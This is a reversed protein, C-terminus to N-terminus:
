LVKLWAAPFFSRGHSMHLFPLIEQLFQFGGNKPILRVTPLRFDPFLTPPIWLNQRSPLQGRRWYKVLSMEWFGVKGGKLNVAPNWTRMSTSPLDHEKSFFTNIKRPTKQLHHYLLALILDGWIVFRSSDPHKICWLRPVVQANPNSNKVVLM